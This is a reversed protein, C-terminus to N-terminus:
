TLRRRMQRYLELGYGLAVGASVFWQSLGGEQFFMPFVFQVVALAVLLYAIRRFSGPTAAWGTKFKGEQELRQHRRTAASQLLGFVYGISAGAILAVPPLYLNTIQM